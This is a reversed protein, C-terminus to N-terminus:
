QFLDMTQGGGPMQSDSCLGDAVSGTKTTLGTCLCWVIQLGIGSKCHECDTMDVVRRGVEVEVEVM